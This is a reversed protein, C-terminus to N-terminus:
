ALLVVLIPNLIINSLIHFKFDLNDLSLITKLFEKLPDPMNFFDKQDDQYEKLPTKFTCKIHVVGPMAIKAAFKFDVNGTYSVKENSSVASKQISEIDKENKKDQAQCGQVLMLLVLFYIRHLKFNIKSVIKM